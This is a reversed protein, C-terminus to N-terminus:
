LILTDSTIESAGEQMVIRCLTLSFPPSGQYGQVETKWLSLCGCSRSGSDTMTTKCWSSNNPMALLYSRGSGNHMSHRVHLSVSPNFPQSCGFISLVQESNSGPAPSSSHTQQKHKAAQPTIKLMNWIHRLDGLWLVPNQYCHASSTTPSPASPLHHCNSDEVMPSIHATGDPPLNM